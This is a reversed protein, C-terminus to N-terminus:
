WRSGRPRRARLARAQQPRRLCPRRCPRCTNLRGGNGTCHVSPAGRCQTHQPASQLPVCPQTCACMIHTRCAAAGAGFRMATGSPKAMCLRSEHGSFAPLRRQGRMHLHRGRNHSLWTLFKAPLCGAHPRPGASAQVPQPRQPLCQGCANDPRQLLRRLRQFITHGGHIIRRAGPCVAAPVNCLAWAFPFAAKGAARATPKVRGLFCPEKGTM